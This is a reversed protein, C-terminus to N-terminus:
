RILSINGIKRVSKGNLLTAELHYSFVATSLEEAKYSGMWRFAPDTSEFVREGWRNYISMCKFIIM